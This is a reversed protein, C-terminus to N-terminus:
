TSFTRNKRAEHEKTIRSQERNFILDQETNWQKVNDETLNKARKVADEFSLLVPFNRENLSPDDYWVCAKNLRRRLKWWRTEYYIVYKDGSYHEVKIKM